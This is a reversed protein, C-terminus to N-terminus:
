NIHNLIAESFVKAKLKQGEKNLHVHDIFYKDEIEFNSIYSDVTSSQSKIITYSKQLSTQIADYHSKTYRQHQPLLSYVEKSAIPVPALIIKAGDLKIQRILLKLNRSFGIPEQKKANNLADNPHISIVNNTLENNLGYGRLWWAYLFKIFSSKLLTEEYTRTKVPSWSNRFHTYEPNYDKELLTLCDNFGTHIIVMDPKLYRNRFIYHSLLEASTAYGLGANMVLTNPIHKNLEIQLSHAWSNDRTVGTAYTTSGGITLIKYSNKFTEHDWEKNRLSFKNHESQNNIKFNPNNQYLLYPHPSRRLEKKQNLLIDVRLRGSATTLYPYGLLCCIELTFLMLIFALCLMLLKFNLHKRNKMIFKNGM